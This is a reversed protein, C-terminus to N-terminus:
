KNSKLYEKYIYDHSDLRFGRPYLEKVYLDIDSVFTYGEKELWECFLKTKDSLPRKNQLNIIKAIESNFDELRPKNIDIKLLRNEEKLRNNDEIIKYIRKLLKETNM